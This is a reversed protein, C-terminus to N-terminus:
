KKGSGRLGFENGDPDLFSAFKGWPMEALEKEFRVGKQKLESYTADIDNCQFVVSPKLEAWNPMFKKPYIVLCSQGGRPAVELWFVGEGMPERRREEFGVQETWFTSARDQDDVYIGVTGIQEIM